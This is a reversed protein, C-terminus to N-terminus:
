SRDGVAAQRGPLLGPTGRIAREGARGRVGISVQEVINGIRLRLRARGPVAIWTCRKIERAGDREGRCDAARESVSAAPTLDLYVPQRDGVFTVAATAYVETGAAISSPCSVFAGSAPDRIKCTLTIEPRPQVDCRLRHTTRHGSARTVHHDIILMGPAEPVVVSSRRMTQPRTVDEVGEVRCPAGSCSVQVEAVLADCTANDCGNCYSSDCCGETARTCTWSIESRLPAGAFVRYSSSTDCGIASSVRVNVPTRYACGALLACTLALRRM